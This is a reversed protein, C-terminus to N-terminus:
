MARRIIQPQPLNKENVLSPAEKSPIRSRTKLIREAEPKKYGTPDSSLRQGSGLMDYYDMVIGGKNKRDYFTVHQSMGVGADDLISNHKNALMNGKVILTQIKAENTKLGREKRDMLRAVEKATSEMDYAVKRLDARNFDFRTAISNEKTYYRKPNGAINRPNFAGGRRKIRRPTM